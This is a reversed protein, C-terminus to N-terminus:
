HHVVSPVFGSDEDCTAVIALLEHATAGRVRWFCPFDVGHRNYFNIVNKARDANCQGHRDTNLANFIM